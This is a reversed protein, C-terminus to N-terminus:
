KAKDPTYDKSLKYSTRVDIVLMEGNRDITMRVVEDEGNM